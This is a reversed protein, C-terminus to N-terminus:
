HSASCSVSARILSKNNKECRKKLCQIYFQWIKKNKSKGVVDIRYEINSRLISNVEIEKVCELWADDDDGAEEFRQFLKLSKEYKQLTEKSIPKASLQVTFICIQSFEGSINKLLELCRELDKHPFSLYRELLSLEGLFDKTFMFERLFEDFDDSYLHKWFMLYYKKSYYM